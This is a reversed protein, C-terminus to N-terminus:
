FFVLKTPLTGFLDHANEVASDVSCAPLVPVTLPPSGHPPHHAAADSLELKKARPPAAKKRGDPKAASSARSAPVALPRRPPGEEMRPRRSEEVVAQRPELDAPAHDGDAAAPAGAAVLRPRPPAFPESAPPVLGMPSSPVASPDGDEMLPPAPAEGSFSVYRRRGPAVRARSIDPVAFYEPSLKRGERRSKEKSYM